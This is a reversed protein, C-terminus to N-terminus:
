GWKKGIQELGSDKLDQSDMVAHLEVDANFTLFWPEVLSPIMSPKEMDVVSIVTRQGNLETFYVSEPNLENLIADMKPGASADKIAANMTEHPLRVIMLMRM